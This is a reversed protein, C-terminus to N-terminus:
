HMRCTGFYMPNNHIPLHEMHSYTGLPLRKFCDDRSYDVRGFRARRESRARSRPCTGSPGIERSASESDLLDCGRFADQRHLRSRPYRGRRVPPLRDMRSGTSSQHLSVTCHRYSASESEERLANSNLWGKDVDSRPDQV